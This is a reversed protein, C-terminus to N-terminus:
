IKFKMTKNFTSASMHFKIGTSGYIISTKANLKNFIKYIISLVIDKQDKFSWIIYLYIDTCGDIKEAKCGNLEKQKNFLKNIRISLQETIKTRYEYPITQEPKIIIIEM